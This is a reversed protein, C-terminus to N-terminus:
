LPWNARGWAMMNVFGNGGAVVNMDDYSAPFSYDEEQGSVVGVVRPDGNWWSFLPGGSNGGTQDGNHELELGGHSDGDDDIVAISGQWSPQEGSAVASPYGLLEWVSMDEWNSSYGNYGFYGLTNGLPEYLRCVAFDYGAVEGGSDWGTCDSVYSEVGSGFLSSGNYYAPIFRMWWSGAAISNWPLLHGATAIIRDGILVGSGMFGDSNYVKGVLGYPWSTHAYPQRDDNGYVYSPTLRKGSFRRIPRLAERGLLLPAPVADVWEPRYSSFDPNRDTGKIFFDAKERSAARGLLHGETLEAPLDVRWLNDHGELREPYVALETDPRETAYVYTRKATRLRELEPPPTGTGRVPSQSIRARPRDPASADGIFPVSQKATNRTSM